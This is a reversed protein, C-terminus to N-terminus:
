VGRGEQHCLASWGPGLVEGARRDGTDELRAQLHAGGRGTSEQGKKRGGSHHLAVVTETTVSGQMTMMTLDKQPAPSFREAPTAPNILAMEWGGRVQLGPLWPGGQPSSSSSPMFLPRLELNDEGLLFM